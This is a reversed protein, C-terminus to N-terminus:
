YRNSTTSSADSPNRYTATDRDPSKKGMLGALGILGLLGLWGGDFGRDNDDDEIPATTTTGADPAVTTQALAPMSSMSSILLGAGILRVLNSFKM